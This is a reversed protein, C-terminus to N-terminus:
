ELTEKETYHCQRVWLTTRTQQTCSRNRSGGVRFNLGSAKFWIVLVTPESTTPKCHDLSYYPIGEEKGRCKTGLSGSSFENAKPCRPNHGRNALTQPIFKLVTSATGLATRVFLPNLLVFLCVFESRVFSLFLLFM